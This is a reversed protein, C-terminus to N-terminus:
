RISDILEYSERYRLTVGKRKVQVKIEHLGVQHGDPLRYALTYGLRQDELALRVGEDIDNRDCFLTGGTREAIEKMTDRYGGAGVTLGRADVSYVAADARNLRAILREFDDGYSAAAPGAGRVVSDNIVVPFGASLWILSKRGPVRALRGAIKDLAELSDQIKREWLLIDIEPTHPAQPGGRRADFPGIHEEGLETADLDAHALVEALVGMDDTFDALLGSNHSLEFLAVRQGPQFTRLSKALLEQSRVRDGYATNLWDLVVLAYSGTIAPAEGKAAASALPSAGGRDAMFMAIPQAKRDDQLRFDV